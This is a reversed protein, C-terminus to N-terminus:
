LDNKFDTGAEYPSACSHRRSPSLYLPALAVPRLFLKPHPYISRSRDQAALPCPSAPASELGASRAELHRSHHTSSGMLLGDVIMVLRKRRAPHTQTAQQERMLAWVHPM